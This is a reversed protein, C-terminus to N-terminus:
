FTIEGSSQDEGGNMVELGEEVVVDAVAAEGVVVAEEVVVVGEAPDQRRVVVGVVQV